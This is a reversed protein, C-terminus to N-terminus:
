DDLEQEGRAGDERVTGTCKLYLLAYKDSWGDLWCINRIRWRVLLYRELIWRRPSFFFRFKEEISGLMVRRYSIWLRDEITPVIAAGITKRSQRGEKREVPSTSLSSFPRLPIPSIPLTKCAYPSSRYIPIRASSHYIATDLSARIVYHSTNHRRPPLSGRPGLRELSRRRPGSFSIEGPWPPPFRTEVEM